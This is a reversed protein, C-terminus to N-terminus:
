SSVQLSPCFAVNDVGFPVYGHSAAAAVAVYAAASSYLGGGVDPPDSLAGAARLPAQYVSDGGTRGAPSYM